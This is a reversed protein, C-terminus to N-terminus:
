WVDKYLLATTPVSKAVRTGALRNGVPVWKSSLYLLGIDGYIALLHTGPYHFGNGMGLPIAIVRIRTGM